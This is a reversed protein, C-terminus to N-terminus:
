LNRCDKLLKTYDKPPKTYDIPAKYLRDPSQITNRPTQRINRPKTYDTPAKYIRKPYGWGLTDGGLGRLPDGGRPGKAPPGGGRPGEAPPM